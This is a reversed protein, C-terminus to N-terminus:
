RTLLCSNQVETLMKWIKPNFIEGKALWFVNFLDIVGFNCFGSRLYCYKHTAFGYEQLDECSMEEAAEVLANQLCFRINSLITQGQPSFLDKNELYSRCYPNAFHQIYGNEGCNLKAELQNYYECSDITISASSNLCILLSLFGFGFIFKM